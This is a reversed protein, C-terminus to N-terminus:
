EDGERKRGLLSASVCYRYFTGAPDPIGEVAKKAAEENKEDLIGGLTGIMRAGQDAGSIPGFCGTCPMNGKVCPYGCGDRTAPGMCLVGQALFCKEPDAQIEHIRKLEKIMMRDPKSENRDCSVCLAKDPALVSGPEPLEGKLIAGLADAIMAATPPCGPLYYDAKIVDDLKLLTEYIEPLTLSFGDVTTETRPVIKEDNEVTVSDLYSTNFIEKMNTLNALSPVGGFCACSGFAVVLRSKKRLMKVVHEQDTNQIGGNILSVAIEGDELAEVDEYKFDMACPWLM